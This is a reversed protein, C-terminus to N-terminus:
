EAGTQDAGGPLVIERLRMQYVQGKNTGFEQTIQREQLMGDERFIVKERALLVGNEANRSETHLVGDIMEGFYRRAYSGGNANTFVYACEGIVRFCTHPSYREFRQNPYEVRSVLGREDAVYTQRVAGDSRLEDLKVTAGDNFSVRREFRIGNMNEYVLVTGAPLKDIPLAIVEQAAAHSALLWSFVFIILRM